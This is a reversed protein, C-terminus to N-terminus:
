KAPYLQAREENRGQDQRGQWNHGGAREFSGDSVFLRARQIGRGAITAPLATKREAPKLGQKDNSKPNKKM